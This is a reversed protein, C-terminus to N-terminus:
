NGLLGRPDELTQRLVKLFGAGTAGDIARHDLAL